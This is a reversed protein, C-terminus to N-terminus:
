GDGPAGGGGQSGLLEAVAQAALPRYFHFGQGEDCGHDRLFRMQAETEVGEAVVKLNLSRGLSTVADVILPDGGASDIDRVFSQDIKLRDVPFQRLYSLSSYGTGFDDISLGVGMAKLARLMGIVMDADQMLITETLELELHRAELGTAALVAEVTQVLGPGFQRASLNVSVKVAPLGADMWDRVQQCATRLVWEGIPQILGTEEAIPIFRQPPVDGDVANRWRALAEVSRVRGTQLDIIPQYVLFFENRALAGRLRTELLLREVARDNMDSTYFRFGNRGQEKARYMATDANRLLTIGDEGDKPYMSVGISCTVFLDRDDIQFPRAMEGLIRQLAHVVIDDDEIDFLAVVFEDGGLRSVTDDERMHAKLRLGVERILRDGAEHGLSDNVLKFNDVDIFLVALQRARRQAFAIGQRLRDQLLNRNALGTLGDYNAQRELQQQYNIIETIDNLIGVFHTVEGNDARVPAILLDNWFVTGNKRYNRLVARGEQRHRLAARVQQLPPQNRDNGQLFRCNRGIVERAVYGTIREFAPNVYEIAYDQRADTIIVANLSAEIARNRLRLTETFLRNEDQLRRKELTARISNGLRGLRDKILYDSAGMQMAEVAAEEGITGSVLIFPLDIGSEKLIALARMGSFQPLSYDSLILDYGPHLAERFEAETIARTVEADFGSRRLEIKVLDFDTDRDELLLIRLKEAQPADMTQTEAAEPAVGPSRWDELLSPM